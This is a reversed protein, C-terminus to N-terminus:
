CEIRDLLKLTFTFDRELAAKSKYKTEYYKWHLQGQTKFKIQLLQQDMRILTFGANILKIQDQQTM